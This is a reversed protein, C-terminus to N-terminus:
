VAVCYIVVLGIQAVIYNGEAGLSPSAVTLLVTAVLAVLALNMIIELSSVSLQIATDIANAKIM